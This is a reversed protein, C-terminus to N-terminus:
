VKLQFSNGCGCSAMASKNIIVFGCRVLTDEYGIECGKLMLSLSLHDVIVAPIDECKFIAYCLSKKAEGVVSFFNVKYKEIFKEILDNAHNDQASNKDVTDKLSSLADSVNICNEFNMTKFAYYEDLNVMELKYHYDKCGGSKIAVKLCYNAGKIKKLKMIQAFGDAAVSFLGEETM